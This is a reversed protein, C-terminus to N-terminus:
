LQHRVAPPTGGVLVNGLVTLSSDIGRARWSEEVREDLVGRYPNKCLLRMSLTIDQCVTSELFQPSYRALVHDALGCVVQKRLPGGIHDEGAVHFQQFIRPVQDMRRM